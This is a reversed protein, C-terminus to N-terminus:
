VKNVLLKKLKEKQADKLPGVIMGLYEDIDGWRSTWGQTVLLKLPTVDLRLAETAIQLSIRSRRVCDERDAEDIEGAQENDIAELKKVLHVSDTRNTVRRGLSASTLGEERAERSTEALLTAFIKAMDGMVGEGTIWGKSMGLSPSLNGDILALLYNCAAGGGLYRELALRM